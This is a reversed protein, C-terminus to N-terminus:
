LTSKRDAEMELAASREGSASACSPPPDLDLRLVRGTHTILTSADQVTWEIRACTAILAATPGHVKQWNVGESIMMAKTSQIGSEFEAVDIWKNWVNMAWFGIVQTHAAYAPDARGSSSGNAMMLALDISQGGTGGPPALAAAAARRQDLLM